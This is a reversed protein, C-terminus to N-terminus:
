ESVQADVAHWHLTNMKNYALGDIATFITSMPLFHRSTDILLGRWPFRPKDSITIPTNSITFGWQGQNFQCEVLQSFTELGRYAGYITPAVLLGIPGTVNLTYSEDVGLQLTEDASQVCVRLSQLPTPTGPIFSTQSCMSPTFLVHNYREFAAFLSSLSSCSVTFAFTQWCHSAPRSDAPSTFM